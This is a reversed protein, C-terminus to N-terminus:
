RRGDTERLLDLSDEVLDLADFEAIVASVQRLVDPTNLGHEGAINAALETVSSEGDCRRWVLAASPNLHHVLSSDHNYLILGDGVDLELVEACKSPRYTEPVTMPAGSQDNEAPQGPYTDPYLAMLGTLKGRRAYGTM